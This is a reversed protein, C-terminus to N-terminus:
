MDLGELVKAMGEDLCDPCKKRGWVVTDGKKNEEECELELRVIM